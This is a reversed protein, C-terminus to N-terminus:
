VRVRGREEEERRREEEEERRRGREKKRRGEEREGERGRGREEGPSGLASLSAESAAAGSTSSEVFFGATTGRGSSMVAMCM